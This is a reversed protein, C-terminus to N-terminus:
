EAARSLCTTTSQYGALYARMSDVRLVTMKPTHFIRLALHVMYFADLSMIPCCDRMSPCFQAAEDSNVAVYGEACIYAVVCM